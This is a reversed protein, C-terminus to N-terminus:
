SICSCPLPSVCSAPSAGAKDAHMPMLAIAMASGGSRSQQIESFPHSDPEDRTRALTSQGRTVPCVAADRSPLSSSPHRSDTPASSMEVGESAQEASSQLDSGIM